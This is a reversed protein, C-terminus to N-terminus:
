SLSEKAEKKQHLYQVTWRVAAEATRAVNYVSIILYNMESPNEAVIMGWMVISLIGSILNLYQSEVFRIAMLVTVVIGAVFLYADIEPYVGGEFLPRLFVLSLAWGGLTTLVTLFCVWPKMFRFAVENGESHKKWHFFSWIQMPFSFLASSVASFYVGVSLYGIGYLLANCGGVLFGYRNAHAMMIQVVLTVLTPLTKLLSQQRLVAFVIILVAVAAMPAYEWVLSWLNRRRVCSAEEKVSMIRGGGEMDRNYVSFLSMELTIPFM